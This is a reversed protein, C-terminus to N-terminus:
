WCMTLATCYAAVLAPLYRHRAGYQWLENARADLAAFIRAQNL